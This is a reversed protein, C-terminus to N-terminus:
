KLFKGSYKLNYRGSKLKKKKKKFLFISKIINAKPPPKKRVHSSKPLINLM